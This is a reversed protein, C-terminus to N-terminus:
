LSKEPSIQLSYADWVINKWDLGKRSFFLWIKDPKKQNVFFASPSWFLWFKLIQSWFLWIPLGAGQRGANSAVQTWCKCAAFRSTFVHPNTAMNNNRLMNLCYLLGCALKSVQKQLCAFCVHTFQSSKVACCWSLSGPEQASYSSIIGVDYAFYISQLIKFHRIRQQSLIEKWLCHNKHVTFTM